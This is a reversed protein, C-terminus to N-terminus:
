ARVGRTRGAITLGFFELVFRKFATTAVYRATRKDEIQLTACVLSPLLAVRRWTGFSIFRNILKELAAFACLDSSVDNDRYYREIGEWTRSMVAAFHRNGLQAKVWRRAASDNEEALQRGETSIGTGIAYDVTELDTEWAWVVDKSGLNQAHLVWRLLMDDLPAKPLPKVFLSKHWFATSGVVATGGHAIDFASTEGTAENRTYGTAIKRTTTGNQYNIEIGSTCFGKLTPTMAVIRAAQTVRDIHAIDDGCFMGFWNGTALKSVINWQGTIHQNETNRVVTVKHRGRYQRVIKEMTDGSGDTSADDMFFMELLEFDQNLASAVSKKIFEAKNYNLFVVTFGGLELFRELSWDEPTYSYTIEGVM